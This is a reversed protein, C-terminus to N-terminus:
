GTSAVTDNLKAAPTRWGLTMRPRTNLRHAIEDLYKQSHVSLDDSKPFYQRLLGNTNENSGRQWPSRPDCFYVPMDTALTFRTHAALELGRDWTLSRRLQAPLKRMQASLADVVTLTNKAPLKILLVFRSHREVLTAIQTSNAGCLLDGEWHGPVARDAAEAPRERISVAGLIQGQGASGRKRAKRTRRQSRLQTTLERKLAGRAQIFLSQYITEHSVRMSNNAKFRAALSHSIQQPSWQLALMRLVQQRLRPYRVLKCPKPRRAAHWAQRDAVSARYARRGGHRAVERSITSPARKLAYAIQRLSRQACLGLLIEEREHLSLARASRVRPRPACGGRHYVHMQITGCPRELASAIQKVPEGALWGRWLRARQDASMCTRASRSRGM